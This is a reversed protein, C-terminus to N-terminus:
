RLSPWATSLKSTCTSTPHKRSHLELVAKNWKIENSKAKLLKKKIRRRIKEISILKIKKRNKSNNNNPQMRWTAYHIGFHSTNRNWILQLCGSLSIYHRRKFPMILFKNICDIWRHMGKGYLLLALVMQLFHFSNIWHSVFSPSWEIAAIKKVDGQRKTDRQRKSERYRM